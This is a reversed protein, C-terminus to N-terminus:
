FQNSENLPFVGSGKEIGGLLFADDITVKWGKLTRVM